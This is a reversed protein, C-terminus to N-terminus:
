NVTVGNGIRPRLFIEEEMPIATRTFNLKFGTISPWGFSPVYDVSVKAAVLYTGDKKIKAPVTYNTNKALATANRAKSWDVKATGSAITIGTLTMKVGTAPYPYMVKASVNMINDVDTSTLSQSQTVLDSLTSSLRSLKRNTAVAASLEITGVFLVILLPAIFAFEVAAVGREDTRMRGARGLAFDRMATLVGKGQMTPEMEKISM